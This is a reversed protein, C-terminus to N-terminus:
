ARGNWYVCGSSGSRGGSLALGDRDVQLERRGMEYVGMTESNTLQNRERRAAARTSQGVQGYVEGSGYDGLYDYHTNAVDRDKSREARQNGPL